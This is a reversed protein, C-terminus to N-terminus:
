RPRSWKDRTRAYALSPKEEEAVGPNGPKV